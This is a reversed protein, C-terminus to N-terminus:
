PIVHFWLAIFLLIMLREIRSPLVGYIGFFKVDDGLLGINRILGM